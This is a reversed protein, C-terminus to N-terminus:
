SLYSAFMTLPHCLYIADYLTYDLEVGCGWLSYLNYDIYYM